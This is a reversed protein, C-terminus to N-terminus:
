HSMNQLKTRYEKVLENEDGLMAFVTMRSQHAAGQQYQRDLQLIEFLLQMVEAYNEEIFYHAALQYKAECDDADNALKGELQEVPLAQEHAKLLAIHGRLTRTEQDDRQEMPMSGVM